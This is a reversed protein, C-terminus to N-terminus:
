CKTNPFFMNERKVRIYVPMNFIIVARKYSKSGRTRRVVTQQRILTTKFRYQDFNSPVM